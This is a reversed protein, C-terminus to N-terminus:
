AWGRAKRMDSYSEHGAEIAEFQRRQYPTKYGREAAWRQDRERRATKRRETIAGQATKVYWDMASDTDDRGTAPGIRHTAAVDPELGGPRLYGAGRLSRLTRM